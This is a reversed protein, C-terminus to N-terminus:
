SMGAHEVTIVTRLLIVARAKVYSIDLIPTSLDVRMTPGRGMPQLVPVNLRRRLHSTPRAGSHVHM